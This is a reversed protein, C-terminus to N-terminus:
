VEISMLKYITVDVFLTDISAFVSSDNAEYMVIGDIHLRGSLLNVKLNDISIRRNLWKESNNEIVHKAVPSVAVLVGVFLVVLVSLVIILIKLGRKM